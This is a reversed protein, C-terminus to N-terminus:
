GVEQRVGRWKALVDYNEEADMGRIERKGSSL